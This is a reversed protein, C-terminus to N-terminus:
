DGASADPGAAPADGSEAAHKQIAEMVGQMAAPIFTERNDRAWALSQERAVNTRQFHPMVYRAFLEYSRLTEESVEMPEPAPTELGLWFAPAERRMEIRLRGAAGANTLMVFAFDRAPVMVLSAVQGLTTGGHAVADEGGVDFVHWTLAM